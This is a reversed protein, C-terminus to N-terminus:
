VAVLMYVLIGALIAMWATLARMAIHHLSIMEATDATSAGAVFAV